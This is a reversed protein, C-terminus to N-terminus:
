FLNLKFDFNRKPLCLPCRQAWFVYFYTVTRELGNYLTSLVVDWLNKCFHLIDSCHCFSITFMILFDTYILLLLIFWFYASFFDTPQLAINSFNPYHWFHVFLSWFDIYCRRSDSFKFYFEPSGVTRFITLSHICTLQYFFLRHIITLVFKCSNNKSPVDNFSSQCIDIIYM